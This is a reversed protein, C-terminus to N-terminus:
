ASAEQRRRELESLCNGSGCCWRWDDTQLMASVDDTRGCAECTALLDEQSGGDGGRGGFPQWATL